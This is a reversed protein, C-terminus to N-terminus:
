DHSAELFFIERTKLVFCNFDILSCLIIRGGSLHLTDVHQNFLVSQHVPTNSQASDVVVWDCATIHQYFVNLLCMRVVHPSTPPHVVHRRAEPDWWPTEARESRCYFVHNWQEWSGDGGRALVKWRWGLHAERLCVQASMMCESQAYM